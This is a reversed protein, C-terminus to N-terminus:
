SAARRRHLRHRLLAVLLLAALAARVLVPTSVRESGESSSGVPNASARRPPELRRAIPSSPSDKAAQEKERQVPTASRKQLAPGAAAAGTRARPPRKRPVTALPFAKRRLATLAQRDGM